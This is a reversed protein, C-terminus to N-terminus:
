ETFWREPRAVVPLPGAEGILADQIRRITLDHMPRPLAEPSWFACAAIEPSHPVPAADSTRTCRFVFFHLDLQDDFYIGGLSEAVVTLGTEETVERIVTAVISEGQEAHGGPLEWNLRGYAHKVLLVKGAEDLIVAAAGLRKAM